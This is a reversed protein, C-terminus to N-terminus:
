NYYQIKKDYDIWIGSQEQVSNKMFQTLESASQRMDYVSWQQSMTM